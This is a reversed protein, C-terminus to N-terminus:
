YLTHHFSWGCRLCHGAVCGSEPTGYSDDVMKPHKCKKARRKSLIAYPKSRKPVPGNSDGYWHTAVYRAHDRMQRHSWDFRSTMKTGPVKYNNSSTHNQLTM